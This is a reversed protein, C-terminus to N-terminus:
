KEGKKEDIGDAQDSQIAMEKRKRRDRIIGRIQSVIFLVLGVCFLLGVIMAFVNM